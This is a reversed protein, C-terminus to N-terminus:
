NIYQHLRHRQCYRKGKELEDLLIVSHPARRVAETLQGGDEYGVFGPPPGTLRSVTHKEGYESM